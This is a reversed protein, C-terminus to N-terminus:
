SGLATDAGQSSIIGPSGVGIIEAIVTTISAAVPSSVSQHAPQADTGTDAAAVCIALERCRQNIRFLDFASILTRCTATTRSCTL